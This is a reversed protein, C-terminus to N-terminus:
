MALNSLLGILNQNLHKLQGQGFDLSPVDSSYSIPEEEPIM